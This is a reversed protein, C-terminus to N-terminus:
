DSRMHGVGVQDKRLLDIFYDLSKEHAAMEPLLTGIKLFLDINCTKLASPLLFCTEFCNFCESWLWMVHPCCSVCSTQFATGVYLFYDSGSHCSEVCASLM